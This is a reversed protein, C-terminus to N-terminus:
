SKWREAGHTRHVSHISKRAQAGAALHVPYSDAFGRTLAATKAIDYTAIEAAGQVCNCAFNAYFGRYLGNVLGEERVIIYYAMRANQLPVGTVTRPGQAKVCVLANESGATAAGNATAGVADARCSQQRPWARALQKSVAARWLIRPAGTHVHAAGGNCHTVTQWIADRAPVRTLGRRHFHDRYVHRQLSSHAAAGHLQRQTAHLTGGSVAARRAGLESRSGSAYGRSNTRSAEPAHAAASGGAPGARMSAHAATSGSGAHAGMAGGSAAGAPATGPERPSCVACSSAPKTRYAIFRTQVVDAPNAVAIGVGTTVTAFLVKLHMPLGEESAGAIHEYLGLRLGTYLM